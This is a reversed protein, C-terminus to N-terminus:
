AATDCGVCSASPGAWCSEILLVIQHSYEGSASLLLAQPPTSAAHMSSRLSQGLKVTENMDVGDSELKDLVQFLNGCVRSSIEPM